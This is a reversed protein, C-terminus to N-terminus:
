PQTQVGTLKSTLLDDKVGGGGGGGCNQDAFRMVESFKTAM